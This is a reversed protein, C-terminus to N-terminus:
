PAVSLTITLTDSYTGEVLPTSGTTAAPARVRVYSGTQNTSAGAVRLGQATSAPGRFSCGGNAQLTSAACTATANATSSNAVLNLTVDYAAKASYGPSATGNSGNAVLGGNQSVVAVRSAGACNLTFAIDKSIGTRDFDAQHVSASPAAGDAFGCRASVSATVPVSLVVPNGGAYATQTQAAAPGAALMAALWFAFACLLRHATM